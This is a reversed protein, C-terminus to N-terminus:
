VPILIALIAGFSHLRVLLITEEAGGGRGWKLDSSLGAGGWSQLINRRGQM